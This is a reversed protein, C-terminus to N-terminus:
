PRFFGTAPACQVDTFLRLDADYEDAYSDRANKVLDEALQQDVGFPLTLTLSRSQDVDLPLTM